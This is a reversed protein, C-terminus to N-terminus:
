DDFASAPDFGGGNDAKGGGLLQINQVSLEVKSVTAGDKEDRNQRLEGSAVQKGKTLFKSLGEAQKGWLTSDFFSVEETWTDGKKVSRNVALSFRAQATGSNTYKLEADRTVRGILQFSNLDQM